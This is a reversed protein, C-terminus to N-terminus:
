RSKKLTSAWMSNSTLKKGSQKAKEATISEQAPGSGTRRMLSSGVGKRLMSYIVDSAHFKRPTAHTPPMRHIAALHRKFNPFGGPLAKPKDIKLKSM